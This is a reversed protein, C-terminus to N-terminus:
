STGQKSPLRQLFAATHPALSPQQQLERQLRKLDAEVDVDYWEPLKHVKLGLGACVALTQPIVLSTSWSIDQFLTHHFRKMGILYYGGDHGIGLTIHAHDLCSFAEVIRDRPLTPGDSNMIVVRQYGLDFHHSLVNALREGLNKGTQPLLNFDASVLKRFYSFAEAPTYALSHDATHITAALALTDQMMCRYLEAAEVPTLPPCLRTKTFGPVPQKAVVILVDEM